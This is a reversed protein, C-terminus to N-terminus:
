YSVWWVAASFWRGYAPVALSAGLDPLTFHHRAAPSFYRLDTGGSIPIYIFKLFHHQLM